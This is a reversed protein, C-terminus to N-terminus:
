EALVPRSRLDELLAVVNAWAIMEGKWRHWDRSNATVLQYEHQAEEFKATVQDVAGQLALYLLEHGEIPGHVRGSGASCENKGRLSFDRDCRLAFSNSSAGPGAGLFPGACRTSSRGHIQPRRRM